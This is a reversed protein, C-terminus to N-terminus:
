IHSANLMKRLQENMTIIPQWALCDRTKQDNIVLSGFIRDILNAKGLVTCIFSIFWLPLPFLRLKFQFTNAIEKLLAKTSVAKGDSVLFVPNRHNVHTMPDAFRRLIDILNELAIFSRQNEILSFPLPIGKKVLNILTNLNGKVGPGYVLPPRIILIELESERALKMLEQEAEWKSVAYIDQPNPTDDPGFASGTATNEGNVKITSLFIFRKIGYQVAKRALNLTLEVNAEQYAKLPNIEEDQMIHARGALHIMTHCNSMKTVWTPSDLDTMIVENPINCARRVLPVVEFHHELLSQCLAQGIFGNAGTVAIKTM